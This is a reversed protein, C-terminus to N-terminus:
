KHSLPSFQSCIIPQLERIVVLISINGHIYGVPVFPLTKGGSGRCIAATRHYQPFLLRVIRIPPHVPAREEHPDHRQLSAILLLNGANGSVRVGCELM